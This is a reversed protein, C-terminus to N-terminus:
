PQPFFRFARGTAAPVLPSPAGPRGNADLPVFLAEDDSSAGAVIMLLGQGERLATYDVGESTRAAVDNPSVAVPPGFAADGVRLAFLQTVGVSFDPRRHYLLTSGDTAVVFGTIASGPNTSLEVPEGPADFDAYFLEDRREPSRDAVFFVGGGRPDMALYNRSVDGNEPLSGNLKVPSVFREGTADGLYLEDTNDLELDGVFGLWSSDLSWRVSQVDQRNTPTRPSVRRASGPQEVDVVYLQVGQDPDSDALYHIRRGDPSFGFGNVLSARVDGARDKLPANVVTPATPVPGSVDSLSLEIQGDRREDAAYLIFRSDPSWRFDGVESEGEGANVLHRSAPPATTLDLVFLDSRGEELEDSVYALHRSDPSFRIQDEDRTVDTDSPLPGNVVAPLALEDDADLLFLAYTSTSTPDIDAVFALWRGDPSWVITSDVDQSTSSPALSARRFGTPTSGALDVLFLEFAGDQLLDGRFAIRDASPAWVVSSDSCPVEGTSMQRPYLVQGTGATSGSIPALYLDSRNPVEFDGCIGAFRTQNPIELPARHSVGRADTVEAMFTSGVPSSPTGALRGTRDLSLGNPLDGFAVAWSLPPQGGRAELDVAYPRAPEVPPLVTTDIALRPVEVTLTLSQRATTGFFDEAQVTFRFSGPVSSQGSITAFPTGNPALDFGIPLSGEVVSWRYEGGIGGRGELQVAYAENAVAHPLDATLIVFPVDVEADCAVSTERVEDPDLEADGDTDLGITIRQGGTRCEPGPAIREAEVLVPSGGCVRETGEIEDEDLTGDRNTDTGRDIRVGGGPCDRGSGIPTVDTLSGPAGNCAPIRQSAEIEELRGNENADLGVLITRGGDNGCESPLADRTTILQPPDGGCGAAAVLGIWVLPTRVDSFHV